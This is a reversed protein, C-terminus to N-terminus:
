WEFDYEKNENERQIANLGVEPMLWDLKPQDSHQREIMFRLELKFGSYENATAHWINLHSCPLPQQPYFPHMPKKPAPKTELAGTNWVTWWVAWCM